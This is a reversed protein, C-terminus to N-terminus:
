QKSERSHPEGLFISKIEYPQNKLERPYNMFRHKVNLKSYKHFFPVHTAELELKVFCWNELTENSTTSM